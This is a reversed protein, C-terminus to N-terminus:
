LRFLCLYGTFNRTLIELRHLARARAVSRSDCDIDCFLPYVPGRLQVFFNQNGMEVDAAMMEYLRRNESKPILAKGGNLRLYTYQDGKVAYGRQRTWRDVLTPM